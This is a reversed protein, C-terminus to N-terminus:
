LVDRPALAVRPASRSVFRPRWGVGKVTACVGVASTCVVRVCSMVGRGGGRRAVPTGGRVCGARHWRSACSVYMVRGGGGSRSPFRRVIVCWPETQGHLREAWEFAARIKLTVRMIGRTIPQISAELQPGM